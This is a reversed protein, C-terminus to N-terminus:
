DAAPPSGHEGARRVTLVAQRVGLVTVDDVRATGEVIATDGVVRVLRVDHVVVDGPLVPAGFEVGAVSGLLLVDEPAFVAGAGMLVAGAQVWSELLLAPPYGLDGGPEAGAYWSEGLSVAKRATVREGPLLEDVRDVLLVPFRHPLIAHVDVAATM